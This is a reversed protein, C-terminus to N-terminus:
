IKDFANETDVSTVMHAKGENQQLIRQLVTVTRHQAMRANWSYGSKTM